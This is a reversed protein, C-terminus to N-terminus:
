LQDGLGLLCCVSLSLIPPPHLLREVDRSVYPDLERKLPISQLLHWLVVLWGAGQIVNFVLLHLQM